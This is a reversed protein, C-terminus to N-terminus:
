NSKKHSQNLYSLIENILFAIQSKLLECSKYNKEELALNIGALRKLEKWQEANLEKNSLAMVIIMADKLM